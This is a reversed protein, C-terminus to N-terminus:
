RRRDFRMVTLFRFTGLSQGQFRGPWTTEIWSVVNGCYRNAGPEASSLCLLFVVPEPELRRTLQEAFYQSRADSHWRYTLLVVNWALPTEGPSRLPALTAPWRIVGPPGLDDEANGSRYLVPAGGARAVQPRLALVAERWEQFGAGSLSGLLQRTAVLTLGTVTAYVMLPALVESRRLRAMTDGALVVVSVVVVDGYRSDLVNAGATTVVVLAAFQAATALWLSARLAVEVDTRKPRVPLWAGLGFPAVLGIVALPSSQFMWAQARPARLIAAMQVGAPLVLLAIAGLDAFARAPSYRSRLTPRLLYAAALGGLFPAFIYHAWILGAAGGIWLARDRTRGATCARIFGLVAVAAFFLALGYPRADVSAWIATYALWFLVSAWVAAKLGGLEKAAYGIVLSAGAVALLSPLRLALESEGFLHISAWAFAYYFPSQGMVTPVRRLMDGFGSEVAWLTSFEDLWLSSRISALRIGLGLVGFFAVAILM